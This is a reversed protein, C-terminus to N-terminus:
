LMARSEQLTVLREQLPKKRNYLAKFAQCINGIPMCDLLYGCNM